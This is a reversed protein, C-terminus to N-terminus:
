IKTRSIAVLAQGLSLGGDNVPYVQSTLVKKGYQELQQTISELLLRNQFVGGSLVITNTATQESLKIILDVSAAALTHHIRAAIVSKNLQDRLDNLVALWLPKWNLVYMNQQKLVAYSYANNRENIFEKAALTELLCAAQGEYAAQGTCLGLVAAFADFWRGCSSSLPSNLNKAIMTSLPALPKTELLQFIELDSYQQRIQEYDFYFELQAFCNRWPEHIAQVGGPM